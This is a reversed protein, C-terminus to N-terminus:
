QMATVAQDLADLYSDLLHDSVMTKTLCIRQFRVGPAGQVVSCGGGPLRVVHLLEGPAYLAVQGPPERISKHTGPVTPYGEGSPEPIDASGAAAADKGDSVLAAKLKQGIPTKPDYGALMGVISGSPSSSKLSADNGDAPAGSSFVMGKLARGLGTIPQYNVAAEVATSKAQACAQAMSDAVSDTCESASNLANLFDKKLCGDPIDNKWDATLMEMQLDQIAKLSLRPVIDDELVVTTIYSMTTAQALEYSLCAPTAIGICSVRETPILHSLHTHILFTLVAATGAGLSHGLIKLNYTPLDKLLCSLREIENDVFWCAAILMGTHAHGGAVEESAAALDTLIDKKNKTGRIVLTLEAASRDVALFYAPRNLNSQSQFVVLDQESVQTMQLVQEATDQYAAATWKCEKLITRVKNVDTLAVGPIADKISEQDHRRALLYLGWVLQEVSLLKSGACAKQLNRACFELGEKSTYAFEIGSQQLAHALYTDDM